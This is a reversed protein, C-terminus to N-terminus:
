LNFLLPKHSDISHRTPPTASSISEWQLKSCNAAANHTRLQRATFLDCRMRRFSVISGAVLSLSAGGDGCSMELARYSSAAYVRNFLWSLLVILSSTSIRASIGNGGM